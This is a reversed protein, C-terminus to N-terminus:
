KITLQIAIIGIILLCGLYNLFVLKGLAGLADLGLTGAVWAMLAFVGFPTLEMVIMTVKQMIVAGSDFIRQVPTGEEKAMLIGIGLLLSFVILPLVNVDAMTQVPSQPVMGLLMERWTTDNPPPVTGMDIASTDVGAGPQVFTGLGLGLWVAMKRLM